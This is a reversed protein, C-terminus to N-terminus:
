RVLKFKNGLLGYSPLTEGFPLREDEAGPLMKWNRYKKEESNSTRQQVVYEYIPEDLTNTRIVTFRWLRKQKVLQRPFSSSSRFKFDVRAYRWSQNGVSYIRVILSGECERYCPTTAKIVDYAVVTAELTVTTAKHETGNVVLAFFLILSFSTAQKLIIERM